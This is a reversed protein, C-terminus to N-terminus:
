LCFSNSNSGGEGNRTYSSNTNSEGSSFFIHKIEDCVSIVCYIQLNIYMSPRYLVFVSSQEVETSYHIIM